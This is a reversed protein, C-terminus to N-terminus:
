TASYLHCLMDVLESLSSRSSRVALLAPLTKAILMLLFLHFLIIKMFNHLGLLNAEAHLDGEAISAVRAVDAIQFLCLAALAAAGGFLM